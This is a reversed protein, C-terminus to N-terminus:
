STAGRRRWALSSNQGCMRCKRTGRPRIHLNAGSYPHGQPCHTKRANLAAFSVGRMTNERSTVTELHDPNVCNPIRCLHDLQLGDPIPGILLEYAYRHARVMKGSRKLQGYGNHVKAGLWLWCAGLSPEYDPIPGNKNVKDWFLTGPPPRGGLPDGYRSWRRYHANCFTLGHRPKGCSAITCQRVERGDTSEAGYGSLAIIMGGVALTATLAGFIAPRVTIARDEAVPRFWARYM